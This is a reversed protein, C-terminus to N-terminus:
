QLECETRDESEDGEVVEADIIHSQSEKTRSQLLKLSAKATEAETSAARADNVNAFRLIAVASKHQISPSSEPDVTLKDLRRIARPVADYL